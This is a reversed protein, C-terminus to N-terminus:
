FQWTVTGSTDTRYVKGQTHNKYRSLATPHPLNEHVGTKTSIVTYTPNCKKIFSLEAGNLSGHHSAHLIDDCIHTTNNAVNALNTDSADGTFLCKRQGQGMHGQFVLCADHIERTRRKAIHCDPGLM